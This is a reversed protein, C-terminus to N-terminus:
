KEQAARFAAVRAKLEAAAETTAVPDTAGARGFTVIDFRGFCSKVIMSAATGTVTNARVEVDQVLEFPIRVSPTGLPPFLGISRDSVALVGEVPTRPNEIRPYGEVAFQPRWFVREFTTVKGEDAPSIRELSETVSLGRRSGM